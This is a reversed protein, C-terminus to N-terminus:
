DLEFNECRESDHLGVHMPGRGCGRAHVSLRKPQPKQGASQQSRGFVGQYTNWDAHGRRYPQGAVVAQNPGWACGRGDNAAADYGRTM